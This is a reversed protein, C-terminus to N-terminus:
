DLLADLTLDWAREAGAPDLESGALAHLRITEDWSGTALFSGDRGFTLGGIRRTHRDFSAFLAGSDVAWVLVRGEVDGAAAFRGDDSLAVQVFSQGPAVFIREVAGSLLNILSAGGREGVLVRDWDVGVALSLAGPHSAVQYLVPSTADIALVAGEISIGVARRGGPALVLQALTATADDRLGALPELDGDPWLTLGHTHPQGVWLPRVGPEAIVVASRLSTPARLPEGHPSLDATVIRSVVRTSGATMVFTAGDATFAGGKAVGELRPSNGRSAGDHLRRLELGHGRTVALLAGDPSVTLSTVGGDVELQTPPGPNLRWRHLGAGLTVLDAPLGRLFRVARVGTDPLRGRWTGSDIDLLRPGGSDGVVVAWRGDPSIAVQRTLAVGSVLDHMVTGAALDYVVLHGDTTGLVIRQRASDFAIASAPGRPRGLPTLYKAPAQGLEGVFLAGDRCSVAWLEGTEDVAGAIEERSACPSMEFVRVTTAVSLQANGAFQVASGAVNSSPPYGCCSLEPAPRPTGDAQAFAEAPYAASTVVVTQADDFFTAGWPGRTPMRWRLVAAAGGVPAIDWVSVAGDEVCALALLDPAVDVERCSEPLPSRSLLQPRPTRALSLLVGRAEPSPELAMSHAALVEAEGRADVAVFASARAALLRALASDAGKLAVKTRAAAAQAVEASSRARAEAALALGREADVDSFAIALGAATAVFAISAIILPVRWASLIRRVLDWTSYEHAAVRRGDLYAGLDDALAKADPYRDEPALATARMVIAALERPVRPALTRLDLAAVMCKKAILDSDNVGSASLRVSRNTCVEFITTGLSWVDSRSDALRGAAQEPSMYRPTGVVAGVRTLGADSAVMGGEDPAGEGLGRALGWDLVQTEGFEGVMINAPKLDRHVVGHRHAFGVAECAQLVYRMLRLRRDLDGGADRIADDLTRGRVVRMTYFIRGDATRGVDHVVVIGPHDLRATITAERMLRAEEAPGSVILEKIAVERGLRVDFAQTVRGMGGVGLIHGIRYREAEPSDFTPPAFGEGAGIAVSDAAAASLGDLAWLEPTGSM